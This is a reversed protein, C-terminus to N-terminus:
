LNIMHHNDNRFNPIYKSIKELVNVKEKFYINLKDNSFKYKGKSFKM